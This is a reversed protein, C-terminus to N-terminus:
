DIIKIPRKQSSNCEPCNTLTKIRQNNTRDSTFHEDGCDMCEYKINSFQM